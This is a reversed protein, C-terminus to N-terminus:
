IYLIVYLFVYQTIRSAYFKSSCLTYHRLSSAVCYGRGEPSPPPHSALVVLPCLYVLSINMKITIIDCHTYLDFNASQRNWDHAMHQRGGVDSYLQKLWHASCWPTFQSDRAVKAYRVFSLDLYPDITRPALSPMRKTLSISQTNWKLIQAEHRLPVVTTVNCTLWICYLSSFFTM